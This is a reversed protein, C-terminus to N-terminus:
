KCSKELAAVAEMAAAYTPREPHAPVRRSAELLRQTAHASAAAERARDAAERVRSMEQELAAVAREHVERAQDEVARLAEDARSAAELAQTLPGAAKAGALEAVRAAAATAEDLAEIIPEADADLSARRLSEAARTGQDRAQSALQGVDEFRRARHAERADLLRSYLRSTASAAEDLPTRATIEVLREYTRLAVEHIGSQDQRWARSVDRRLEDCSPGAPQSRSCGLVAIMLALLAAGRFRDM